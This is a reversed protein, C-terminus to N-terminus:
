KLFVEEYLEGLTVAPLLIVMNSAGVLFRMILLIWLSSSLAVGIAAGVHFISGM